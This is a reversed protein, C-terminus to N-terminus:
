DNDAYVVDCLTQGSLRYAEAEAEAYTMRGSRYDCAEARLYLECESHLPCPEM